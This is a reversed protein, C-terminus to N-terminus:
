KHERSAIGVKIATRGSFHVHKSGSGCIRLEADFVSGRPVQADCQSAGDCGGIGNEPNNPANQTKSFRVLGAVTGSRQIEARARAFAIGCKGHAVSELDAIASIEIEAPDPEVPVPIFKDNGICGDRKVLICIAFVLYAKAIFGWFPIIIGPHVHIARENQLSAARAYDCRM